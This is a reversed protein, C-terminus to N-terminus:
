IRTTETTKQIARKPATKIADAGSEKASDLLNQSVSLNKSMNKAFPLFAYGKVHIRNKPENSYSM